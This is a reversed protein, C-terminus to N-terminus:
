KTEQKLEKISGGVKKCFILADELTSFMREKDEWGITYLVIYKKM